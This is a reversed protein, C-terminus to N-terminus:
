KPFMWSLAYNAIGCAVIVLACAVWLRLGFLNARDNLSDEPKQSITMRRTEKGNLIIM